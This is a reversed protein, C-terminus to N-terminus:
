LPPAVACRNPPPVLVMELRNKGHVAWLCLALRQFTQPPGDGGTGGPAATWSSSEIETVKKNMDLNQGGPGLPLVNELKESTTRGSAM